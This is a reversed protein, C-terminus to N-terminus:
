GYNYYFSFGEIATLLELVFMRILREEAFAVGPISFAPSNAYEYADFVNKM